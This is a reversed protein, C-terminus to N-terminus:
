WNFILVGFLIVAVAAVNWPVLPEKLFLWALFLVLVYSLGTAMYVSSLSFVKLALFSMVPAVCFAGIALFLYRRLRSLFYLRYSVQAVSTAAIALALPLFKM